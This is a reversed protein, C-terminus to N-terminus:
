IIHDVAKAGRQNGQIVWCSKVVSFITTSKRPVYFPSFFRPITFLVSSHNSASPQQGQPHRSESARLMVFVALIFNQTVHSYKESSQEEDRIYDLVEKDRSSRCDRVMCVSNHTHHMPEKMTNMWNTEKRQWRSRAIYLCGLSGAHRGRHIM